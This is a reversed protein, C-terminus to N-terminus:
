APCYLSSQSHLRSRRDSTSDILRIRSLLGILARDAIAPFPVMRVVIVQFQQEVFDPRVCGAAANSEITKTSIWERTPM